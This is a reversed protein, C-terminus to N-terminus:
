RINWYEINSLQKKNIGFEYITLPNISKKLDEIPKTPNIENLIAGAFARVRPPYKLAIDVLEKKEKNTLDKIKQLMFKIIQSKETDPIAKFDKLVDLLEMLYYNENTVDLYSKVPKVQISGIKTVIRKGRSAVRINKPVQTTLGLRNYLSTGTIYAFRKGDDFLYPKLLEEEKPKLDGFATKKPKYFVGTSARSIVGKKILREIAKAAASYEDPAIALGQYKFTTGDQMKNIRTEIKKAVKM